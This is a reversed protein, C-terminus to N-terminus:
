NRRRCRRRALLPFAAASLLTGFAPEPVANINDVGFSSAIAAGRYDVGPNDLIRFEKVRTLGTALPTSGGLPTMAASTLNFQAHHWAGDAPLAFAQTSAYNTGGTEELAIRMALPTTGFNKLDMAVATVGAATFNGTWRTNTNFTILKSGAGFGGTSNVKLFTDGAGAPGGNDVTFPDAASGGNTWGQVMGTQFDILQNFTPNALAAPAAMCCVALACCAVLKM